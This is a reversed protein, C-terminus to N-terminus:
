RAETPHLARAESCGVASARHLPTITFGLSEPGLEEYHPVFRIDPVDSRVDGSFALCSEPATEFRLETLPCRYNPPCPAAAYSTPAPHDFAHYPLRQSSWSAIAVITSEEITTGDLGTVLMRLDCDVGSRNGITVSPHPEGQCDLCEVCGSHAVLAIALLLVARPTRRM